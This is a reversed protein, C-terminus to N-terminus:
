LLLYKVLLGSHGMSANCSVAWNGLIGTSHLFLYNVTCLQHSLHSRSLFLALSASLHPIPALVQCLSCTSSETPTCSPYGMKGMLGSSTLRQPMAEQFNFSLTQSCFPPHLPM